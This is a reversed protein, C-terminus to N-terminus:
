RVRGSRERETLSSVHNAILTQGRSPRRLTHTRLRTGRTSRMYFIGNTHGASPKLRMRFVCFVSDRAIIRAHASHLIGTARSMICCSARARASPLEGSREYQKIHDKSTQSGLAYPMKTVSMSLAYRLIQRLNTDAICVLKSSDCALDLTIVIIFRRPM